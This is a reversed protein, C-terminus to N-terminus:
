SRALGALGAVTMGAVFPVFVMERAPILRREVPWALWVDLHAPALRPDDLHYLLRLEERLLFVRYL